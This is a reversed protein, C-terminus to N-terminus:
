QSVSKEKLNKKEKRRKKLRSQSQFRKTQQKDCPMSNIGEKKEIENQIDLVSGKVM